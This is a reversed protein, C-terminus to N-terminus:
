HYRSLSIIVLTLISASTGMTQLPTIIKCGFKGYVWDQTSYTSILDIPINSLLVTLDALALNLIFYNTVTRMKRRRAVVLVVLINGITGFVFIIVVTITYFLEFASNDAM